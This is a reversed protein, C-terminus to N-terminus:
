TLSAVLSLRRTDPVESPGPTLGHGLNSARDAGLENQENRGRERLRLRGDHLILLQFQM